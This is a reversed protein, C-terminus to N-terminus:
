WLGLGKGHLHPIAHSHPAQPSDYVPNFALTRRPIGRLVAQPSPFLATIVEEVKLGQTKLVVCTPGGLSLRSLVSAAPRFCAAKM